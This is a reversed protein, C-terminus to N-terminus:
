SSPPPTSITCNNTVGQGPLLECACSNRSWRSGPPCDTQYACECTCTIPNWVRNATCMLNQICRPICAQSAQDWREWPNCFAPLPRQVPFPSGNPLPDNNIVYDIPHLDIQATTLAILLLCLLLTKM